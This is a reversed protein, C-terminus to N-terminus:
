EAAHAAASPAGTRAAEAMATSLQGCARASAAVVEPAFADGPGQKPTRILAAEAAAGHAEAAGCAAPRRAAPALPRSGRRFRPRPRLTM